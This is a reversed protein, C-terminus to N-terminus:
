VVAERLECVEAILGVIFNTFIASNPQVPFSISVAFFEKRFDTLGRGVLRRISRQGECIISKWRCARRSCDVECDGGGRVDEGGDEVGAGM